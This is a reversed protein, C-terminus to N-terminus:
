MSSQLKTILVTYMVEHLVNVATVYIVFACEAPLFTFRYSETREYGQGLKLDIRNIM